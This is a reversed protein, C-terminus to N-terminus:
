GWRIRKSALDVLFLAIAAAALPTELPWRRRGHHPTGAGLERETVVQGGGADALIKLFSRDEGTQAVESSRQGDFVTWEGEYRQGSKEGRPQGLLTGEVVQVEGEYRGPGRQTLQVEHRQEAGDIVLARVTLNDLFTGVSDRAAVALRARGGAVALELTLDRRTPPRIASRFLQAWFKGFNEWVVWDLGWRRTADSTFVLVTGLGFRWRTLLPEDKPTALLIEATPKAKVRSYGWLPPAHQLDLGLLERTPRVVKPVVAQRATATSEVRAAEELFYTVVKDKATDEATHRYQGGGFRAIEQLRKVDARAGIGITSVTIGQTRMPALRQDFINPDFSEGDTLLIIHRVTVDARGLTRFAEELAPLFMTGGGSGLSGIQDKVLAKDTLPQLPLIWEPKADFAIVGLQATPTLRDVLAFAARKAYELKDGVMSGSRDVLLVLGIPPIQRESPQNLEVPYLPALQDVRNESDHRLGTAGAVVVLGGGLDRVYRELTSQRLRDFDHPAVGLLAIVDYRSLETVSGSLEEPAVGDVELGQAALADRLPGAEADGTQGGEASVILVRPDGSVSRLRVIEDDAPLGDGPLRIRAHYRVFGSRTPILDVSIRQEGVVLPVERSELQFDNETLTFTARGARNSRVIATAQGLSGQRLRAPLLLDSVQADVLAGDGEMSLVDLTVGRRAARRVATLADGATQRGDTVLVIHPAAGDPRGAGALDIARGIDTESDATLRHVKPVRDDGQAAREPRAAFLVLDDDKTWSKDILAQVRDLTASPMSRSVDVVFAAPVRDSPVVLTPRSLAFILLTVLLTRLVQQLVFRGRSFNLFSRRRVWVLYAVVVPFALFVFPAGFQLSMLDDVAPPLLVM